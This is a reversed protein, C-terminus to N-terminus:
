STSPSLRTTVIPDTQTFFVSFAADSRKHVLLNLENKLCILIVVAQMFNNFIMM